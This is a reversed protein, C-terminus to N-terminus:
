KMVPPVHDIVWDFSHKTDWKHPGEFIDHCVNEEMGFLKMAKRVKEVQPYVNDLGDAGNLTDIDGTQIMVPRPCILAGIDGMDATKWLNPVYNCSCNNAMNLLSQQYGYFYGSIVACEIRTDLATLWLTQLGGGSLGVCAVHGNVFECSLAFDVLRMLDWTWMGTVTQGFSYAIKNLFHCSSELAYEDGQEFRERREGFGRADAAFVVYGKQALVEGYNYEHLDITDAVEKKERVGAVADKGHSAHGHCAIVATRKEGEKMDDPRLVYFPMFVDPEVQILMKTRVYGDCPVSELTEPCPQCEQMQDLGILEKLKERLSLSWIEHEEKTAAGYTHTRYTNQFMTEFHKEATFYKM